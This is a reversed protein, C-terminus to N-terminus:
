PIQVKIKRRELVDAETVSVAVTKEGAKVEYPMVLGTSGSAKLPAYPLVFTINGESDAWGKRAFDFVRGRNTMVRSVVSVKKGPLSSVELTAGEIYEFVKLKRIDRQLFASSGSREQSEYILRYHDVGEFSAYETNIKIGDAYYLRMAVSYSLQREPLVVYRAGANDMISNAKPEYNTMFFEESEKYGYAENGYLTAVVPRQALYLIWGAYDWPAMVSYQPKEFPDYPDKPAPTRARLWLMGDQIDGKVLAGIPMSPMRYAATAFPYFLLACLASSFVVATLRRRSKRALGYSAYLLWGGMIAADISLIHMFRRRLLTAVLVAVSMMVFVMVGRDGGGKKIFKICLYIIVAPMLWSLWGFYSVPAQINKFAGSFFPQYEAISELWPDGGGVGMVGLGAAVNERLVPFLHFLAGLVAVVACATLFLFIIGRYKIRKLWFSCAYGYVFVAVSVAGFAATHFWSIVNFSFADQTGWVDFYSIPFLYASLLLFSGGVRTYRKRPLDRRLFDVTVDLLGVLASLLVWVTAGRWFLLSFFAALSFLLVSGLGVKDRQMRVYSLFLLAVMLPEMMENDPRGIITFEIHAPMFVLLASSILAAERNFVARAFYYVAIVTLGGVLPPALAATTEVVRVSPSGFGIIMAIVSFLYDLLPPSLAPTGMPYGEFFDFTVFHPFNRIHLLIKRLHLYCDGEFFFVGGNDFVYGFPLARVAVAAAFLLLLLSVTGKRDPYAPM